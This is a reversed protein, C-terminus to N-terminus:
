RAHLRNKVCWVYRGGFIRWFAEILHLGHQSYLVIAYAGFPNIRIPNFAINQKVIRFYQTLSLATLEAPSCCM